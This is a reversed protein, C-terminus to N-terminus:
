HRICFRAASPLKELVVRRQGPIPIVPVNISGHQRVGVLGPQDLIELRELFLVIWFIPIRADWYSYGNPHNVMEFTFASTFDFACGPNHSSSMGSGVMPILSTRMRTRRVPMQPESM